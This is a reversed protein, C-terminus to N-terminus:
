VEIVYSSFKYLLWLMLVVKTHHNNNLLQIKCYTHNVTVILYHLKGLVTHCLTHHLLRTTEEKIMVNNLAM